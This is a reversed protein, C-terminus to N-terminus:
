KINFTRINSSSKAHLLNAVKKKGQSKEIFPKKKINFIDSDQKNNRYKLSNYVKLFYHLYKYNSLNFINLNYIVCSVEPKIKYPSLCAVSSTFDTKM